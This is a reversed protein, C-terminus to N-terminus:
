YKTRTFCFFPIYSSHFKSIVLVKNLSFSVTQCNNIFIHRYYLVQLIYVSYLHPIYCDQLKVDDNMTTTMMIMVVTVEVMTIKMTMMMANTDDDDDDDDGGGDDDDDDNDDDDVDGEDDDDDSTKIGTPVNFAM